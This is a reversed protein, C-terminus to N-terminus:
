RLMLFFVSLVVLAAILIGGGLLAVAIMQRWIRDADQPPGLPVQGGLRTEIEAALEAATRCGVIPQQWVGNVRMCLTPVNVIQCQECLKRNEKLDINASYFRVCSAYQDAFQRIHQDFQPDIGNWPAWFHVAITTREDLQAGDREGVIPPTSPTWGPIPRAITM